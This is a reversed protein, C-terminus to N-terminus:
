GIFILLIINLIIFLLGSRVWDWVFVFIKLNLGEGFVGKTSYVFIMEGPSSLGM